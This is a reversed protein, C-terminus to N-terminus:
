PSPEAVLRVPACEEVDVTNTRLRDVVEADKDADRAYRNISVQALERMFCADVEDPVDFQPGREFVGCVPQTVIAAAELVGHPLM